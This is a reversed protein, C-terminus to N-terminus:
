GMSTLIQNIIGLITIHTATNIDLDTEAKEDPICFYTYGFKIGNVNPHM